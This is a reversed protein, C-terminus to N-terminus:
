DKKEKKKAPAKKKAAAKKAEPAPAVAPMVNTKKRRSPRTKGYSGMFIKGRRSKRDGKGM